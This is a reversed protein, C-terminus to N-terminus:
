ALLGHVASHTDETIVVSEGQIVWLQGEPSQLIVSGESVDLRRSTKTVNFSVIRWFASLSDPMKQSM